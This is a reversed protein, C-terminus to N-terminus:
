HESADSSSSSIASDTVSLLQFINCLNLHDKSVKIPDSDSDSSVYMSVLVKAHYNCMRWAVHM